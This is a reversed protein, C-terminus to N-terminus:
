SDYADQEPMLEVKFSLSEIYADIVDRLHSGLEETNWQLDLLVTRTGHPFNFIIKNQFLEEWGGSKIDVLTGPVLDETVRQLDERFRKTEYKHWDITM